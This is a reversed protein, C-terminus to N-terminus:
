RKPQLGRPLAALNRQLEQRRGRSARTADSVVFRVGRLGRRALKRLFAAWFTESESPGTDMGLVERRGDGNVTVAVIAAVSVSRGAQRVKM